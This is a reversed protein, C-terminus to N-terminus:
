GQKKESQREKLKAIAGNVLPPIDMLYDRDRFHLEGIPEEGEKIRRFFRRLTVMQGAIKHTMYLTFFGSFSITVIAALVTRVNFTAIHHALIKRFLEAETGSLTAAPELSTMSVLGTIWAVLFSLSALVVNIGILPLQFQKYILLNHLKRRNKGRLEPDAIAM